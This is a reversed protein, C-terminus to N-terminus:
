CQYEESCKNQDEQMGKGQGKHVHSLRTVSTLEPWRAIGRCATRGSGEILAPRPFASTTGQLLVYVKSCRWPYASSDIFNRKKEPGRKPACSVSLLFSFAWMHCAHVCYTQIHTLLSCFARLMQLLFLKAIGLTSYQACVSPYSAVMPNSQDSNRSTLGLQKKGM